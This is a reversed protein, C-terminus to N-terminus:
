VSQAQPKKQKAITTLEKFEEPTCPHDEKFDEIKANLADWNRQQTDVYMKLYDVIAANFLAYRKKTDSENTGELSAYYVATFRPYKMLYETLKPKDPYGLNKLLAATESLTLKRSDKRSNAGSPITDVFIKGIMAPTPSFNQDIGFLLGKEEVYGMVLKDLIEPLIKGEKDLFIYFPPGNKLQVRGPEITKSKLFADFNELDREFLARDLGSSKLANLYIDEEPDDFINIFDVVRDIFNPPTYPAITLSNLQECYKLLEAGTIAEKGNQTRNELEKELFFYKSPYKTKLFLRVKQNFNNIELRIYHCENDTKGSNLLRVKFERNFLILPVRGQAEMRLFTEFEVGVQQVLDNGITESADTKKPPAPAIKGDLEMNTILHSFDSVKKFIFSMSPSHEAMREEQSAIITLAHDAVEKIKHLELLSSNYFIQSFIKFIGWADLATKLNTIEKSVKDRLSAMNKKDQFLRKQAQIFIECNGDFISCSFGDNSNFQTKESKIKEIHKTHLEVYDRNVFFDTIAETCKALSTTNFLRNWLSATRPHESGGNKYYLIRQCSETQVIADLYSRTENLKSEYSTLDMM